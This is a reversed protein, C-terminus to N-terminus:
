IIALSYELVLNRVDLDTTATFTLTIQALSSTFNFTAQRRGTEVHPFVQVKEGFSQRLGELRPRWVGQLSECAKVFLALREQRGKYEEVKEQRLSDLKAKSRAFEADIRGLLAQVDTEM